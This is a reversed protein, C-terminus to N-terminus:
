VSQGAPDELPKCSIAHSPLVEQHSRPVPVSEVGVEIGLGLGSRLGSRCQALFAAAGSEIKLQFFRRVM